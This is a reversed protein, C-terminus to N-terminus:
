SFTWRVLGVDAVQMEIVLKALSIEIVKYATVDDLTLTKGDEAMSWTGTEVDGCNDDIVYTNDAKFDWTSLKECDTAIDDGLVTKSVLNWKKVVMNTETTEKKCSELLVGSAVLIALIVLNIKTKM